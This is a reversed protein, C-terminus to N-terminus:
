KLVNFIEKGFYTNGKYHFYAQSFKSNFDNYLTSIEWQTNSVPKSILSSFADFTLEEDLTIDTLDFHIETNPDGFIRKVEAKWDGSFDMLHKGEINKALNRAINNVGFAYKQITVEEISQAMKVLSSELTEAAMQNAVQYTLKAVTQNFVSIESKAFASIMRVMSVSAKGAAELIGPGIIDLPSDSLYVVGSGSNKLSFNSALEGSKNKLLDYFDPSIFGKNSKLFQLAAADAKALAENNGVGFGFLYRKEDGVAAHVLGVMSTSLMNVYDDESYWGKKNQEDGRHFYFDTSSFYTMVLGNPGSISESYSITKKEGERMYDGYVVVENEEGPAEGSLDNWMVPNNFAYNYPSMGAFKAEMPDVATWRCLWPIYYRAGHYYLGSEEDREKGTYRYRKAVANISANVAQYSTTGYPHYEEYSIIEADEDLELSASQLHNSYVYRTLTAATNNDDAAAGYTRNELMAIRGSDDSIHLTERECILSSNDFKRYIEYDGLYIREEAITGKITHKRIRQGSGYQYYTTDTGKVVSALENHHNWSMSNLHPLASMNGRVDHTYTYTDSGM